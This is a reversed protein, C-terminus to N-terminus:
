EEIKDTVALTKLIVKEEEEGADLRIIYYEGLKPSTEPNNHDNKIRYTREPYWQNNSGLRVRVKAVLEDCPDLFYGPAM